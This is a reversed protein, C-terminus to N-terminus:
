PNPDPLLIFTSLQVRSDTRYLSTASEILIRRHLSAASSTSYLHLAATAGRLLVPNLPASIKPLKSCLASSM